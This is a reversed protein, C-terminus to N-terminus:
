PILRAPTLLKRFAQSERAERIFQYESLVQRVSFLGRNLPKKRTPKHISFEEIDRIQQPHSVQNTPKITPGM